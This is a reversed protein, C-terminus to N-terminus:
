VKFIQRIKYYFEIIVWFKGFHEHLLFKRAKRKVFKVGKGVFNILKDIERGFFLLVIM